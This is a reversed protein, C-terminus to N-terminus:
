TFNLNELKEVRERKIVVKRTNNNNNNNHNEGGVGGGGEKEGHTIKISEEFGLEGRGSKKEYSIETELCVKLVKKRLLRDTIYITHTHKPQNTITM